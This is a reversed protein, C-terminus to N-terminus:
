KITWLRKVFNFDYINCFNYSFSKLTKQQDNMEKFLVQSIQLKAHNYHKADLADLDPILSELFIQIKSKPPTKHTAAQASSNANSSSNEKESPKSLQQSDLRNSVSVLMKQAAALFEDNVRRRKTPPHFQKSPVEADEAEDDLTSSQSDYSM